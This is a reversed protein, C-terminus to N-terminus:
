KLGTSSGNNTTQGGNNNNSTGGSNSNSNNTVNTKVTDSSTTSSDVPTSIFPNEKSPNYTNSKKYINLDSGEIMYVKNQIQIEEEEVDEELDNKIDEPATYAIKNPIVKAIPNYDYFLISLILLIAVCLLIVIIGEKLITKIM